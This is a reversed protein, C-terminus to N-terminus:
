RVLPGGLTAAYQQRDFSPAPGSTPDFTAPLAQLSDDRYFLSAGGHWVDTGSRTIVNISSAASRGIEASFRNTAIQFEQVADQPLNAPTGGVGGGHNDQGGSNR